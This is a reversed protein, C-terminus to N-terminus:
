LKAKEFDNQAATARQRQTDLEVEARLVEIGAVLGAQKLDAAQNFLAEATAVEARVAEVRASAALAQAYSITAALVVLDRASKYDHQAATLNHAEARSDNLVKLDLVTQSLFVRADFLNFPGVIPPIGAPLTFGYAALNLVQRSESIRGTVNPLLDGFTRSRVGRARDIGHDALLVGLNQALARDIAERITLALPERSPEGSPVSGLFPSSTRPAAPQSPPPPQAPPPPAAPLQFQAAAPVASSAAFLVLITLPLVVRVHFGKRAQCM